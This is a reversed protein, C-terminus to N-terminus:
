HFPDFNPNGPMEQCVCPSFPRFNQVSIYRSRKWFQNTRPLPRYIKRIKTSSQSLSVPLIQPKWANEENHHGKPQFKDYKPNRSMIQLIHPLLHRPSPPPMNGVSQTSHQRTTDWSPTTQKAHYSTPRAIHNQGQIKLSLYRLLQIEPISPDQKIQFM